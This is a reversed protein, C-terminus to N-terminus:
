SLFASVVGCGDGIAAVFVANWQGVRAPGACGKGKCSQRRPIRSIEVASSSRSAVGGGWLPPDLVQSRASPL